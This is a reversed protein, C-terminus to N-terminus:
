RNTFKPREGYSSVEWVEFTNIYGKGSWPGSCLGINLASYSQPVQIWGYIEEGIGDPAPNSDLSGSSYTAVTMSAPNVDTFNYGITLNGTGTKRSGVCRVFLLKGACYSYSSSFSVYFCNPVSGSTTYEIKRGLYYTDASDTWSANASKGWGLLATSTSFGILNPSETLGLSSAGGINNIFSDLSGFNGYAFTPNFHSNLTGAFHDGTSWNVIRNNTYSLSNYWNVDGGIISTVSSTGKIIYNNTFSGSYIGMIGDTGTAIMNVYCTNSSNLACSEFYNGDIMIQQAGKVEIARGSIQEFNNNTINVNVGRTVFIAASSIGYMFSNNDIRVNNMGDADGLPDNGSALGHIAYQM